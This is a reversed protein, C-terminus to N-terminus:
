MGKQGCGLFAVIVACFPGAAQRKVADYQGVGVFGFPLIELVVLVVFGEDIADVDDLHGVAQLHGLLNLDVLLQEV